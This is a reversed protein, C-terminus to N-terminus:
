SHGNRGRRRRDIEEQIVARREDQLRRLQQVTFRRTSWLDVAALFVLAMLFLLIVIWSALYRVTLGQAEIQEPPRELFAFTTALLAALAFMMGSGVLRRWAQGRRWRAEDASLETGARLRRLLRVQRWGYVGALVVLTAILVVGWVIQSWGVPVGGTV